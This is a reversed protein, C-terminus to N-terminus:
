GAGSATLGCPVLVPWYFPSAMALTPTRTSRGTLGCATAIPPQIRWLAVTKTAVLPACMGVEKVNFFMGSATYSRSFAAASSCRLLRFLSAITHRSDTSRGLRTAGLSRSARARSSRALKSGPCNVAFSMSAAFLAPRLHNNNIAIDQRVQVQRAFEGASGFGQQLPLRLPCSRGQPAALEPVNQGSVNSAVHQGKFLGAAQLGLGFSQQIPKLEVHM